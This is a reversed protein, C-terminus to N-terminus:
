RGRKKTETEVLKLLDVPKSVRRVITYKDGQEVELGKEAIVTELAPLVSSVNLTLLLEDGPVKLKKVHDSVKQNPLSFMNIPLDKIEAWIVDSEFQKTENTM